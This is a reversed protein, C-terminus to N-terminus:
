VVLYLSHTSRQLSAMPKNWQSKCIAVYYGASRLNSMMFQRLYSKYEENEIVSSVNENVTAIAKIDDWGKVLRANKKLEKIVAQVTKDIGKKVVIQNAGLTVNLLGLKIIEWALVSTTTTEDGALNNTKSAVEQILDERVNEMANFLEIARAFTVIDNVVKLM